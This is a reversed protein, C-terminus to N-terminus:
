GRPRRFREEGRIDGRGAARSRTTVQPRGILARSWFLGRYIGARGRQRRRAACQTPSRACTPPCTPPRPRRWTHPPAPGPTTPLPPARVQKRRVHAPFATLPKEGLRAPGPPKQTFLASAAPSEDPPAM